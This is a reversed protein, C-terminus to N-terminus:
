EEETEAQKTEPREINRFILGSWAEGYNHEVLMGAVADSVDSNILRDSRYQFGVIEAAFPNYVAVRCIDGQRHAPIFGHRSGAMPEVVTLPIRPPWRESALVADRKEDFYPDEEPDGPASFVRGYKELLERQGADEAISPYDEELTGAQKAAWQEELEKRQEEDALAETLEPFEEALLEDRESLYSDQDTDSSDENRAKKYAGYAVAQKRKEGKERRDALEDETLESDLSRPNPDDYDGNQYAAEEEEWTEANETYDAIQESTFDELTIRMDRDTDAAALERAEDGIASPTFPFSVHIRGLRDRPVPEGIAYDLGADVVASVFVPSRDLSQAPHWATTGNLLTVDNDYTIGNRLHHASRAVQWKSVGQITRNLGIVRGPQLAPQRSMGSVRLMETFEGLVPYLNRLQAERLDVETGTFIADIAGTAGVQLPSGYAPNDVVAARADMGPNAAFGDIFILGHEKEEDTAEAPTDLGNAVVAMNLPVLSQSSESPTKDSLVWDISGDLRGIMRARIGLGGFVDNLWQGLTQGVATTFPLDMLSDRFDEIVRIRPLGPLLPELSPKGDGGAALSLAGGVMEGLSAARYAGWIPLASLHTVPDVLRVQGYGYNPDASDYFPELYSVMCPWSRVPIDEGDEVYVCLHLVVPVGADLSMDYYLMHLTETIDLDIDSRGGVVASGSWGLGYEEQLSFSAVLQAAEGEQLNDLLAYYDM